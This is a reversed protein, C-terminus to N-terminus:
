APKNSVKPMPAEFFEKVMRAVLNAQTVPGFHDAGPLVALHANPILRFMEVAHEPRVIDRDGIMLLVPTQISRMEDASWGEFTGLVKIKEILTSWDGPKPAVKEYVQRFPKLGPDDAKMAAMAAQTEDDIGTARYATGFVAVKRVLAPHRMAIRLAIAGGDSWGFIDANKVGLKRLLAATDEAMQDYTLPRDVDATHGHAQQEIAITKWRAAFEPRMKSFSNDITSLGGHLLILPRGSGQIEYYIKLGNINAYSHQMARQKPRNAKPKLQQAATYDFTALLTLVALAIANTSVKMITKRM